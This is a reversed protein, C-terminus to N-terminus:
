AAQVVFPNITDKYLSSMLRLKGTRLNASFGALYIALLNYQSNLLIIMNPSNLSAACSFVESALYEISNLSKATYLRTRRIGNKLNNPLGYVNSYTLLYTPLSYMWLM